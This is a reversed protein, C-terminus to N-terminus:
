QSSGGGPNDGAELHDWRVKVSLIQRFREEEEFAKKAEFYSRYQKLDERGLAVAEDIQSVDQPINLAVLLDAVKQKAADVKQEQARLTADLAALAAKRRAEPQASPELEAIKSAVKPASDPKVAEALQSTLVGVEGRLRLLERFQEQALPQDTSPQVNALQGNERPPSVAQGLQVRLDAAEATLRSIRGQQWLLTMALALLVVSVATAKLGTRTM